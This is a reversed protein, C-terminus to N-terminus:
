EEEGQEFDRECDKCYGGFLEPYLRGCDRCIGPRSDMWSDFREEEMREQRDQNNPM